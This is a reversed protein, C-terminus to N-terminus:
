QYNPFNKDDIEERIIIEEMKDEIIPQKLAIQILQQIQEFNEKILRQLIRGLFPIYSPHSKDKLKM